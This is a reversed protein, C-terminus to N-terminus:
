QIRKPKVPVRKVEDAPTQNYAENMLALQLAIEKLWTNTSIDAAKLDKIQYSTM